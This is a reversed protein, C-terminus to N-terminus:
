TAFFTYSPVMIESGPPLDLAFFMATLAGTGSCYARVHRADFRDKWDKELAAISDYSPRRVLALVAEEEAQGYRPWRWAGTGGIAVAKPGGHLALTEPVASQGTATSVTASTASLSAAAACSSKLFARRTTESRQSSSSKRM